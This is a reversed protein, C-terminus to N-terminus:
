LKLWQRLLLPLSALCVSGMHLTYPVPFSAERGVEFGWTMGTSSGWPFSSPSPRRPPEATSCRGEAWPVTRSDRALTRHRAGQMSGAEGEAQTEAESERETHREHIFLYFRLFFFFLHPSNPQTQPCGAAGRHDLQTGEEREQISM